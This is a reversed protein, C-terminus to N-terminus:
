TEMQTDINESSRCMMTSIMYFITHAKESGSNRIEPQHGILVLQLRVVRCPKSKVSWTVNKANKDGSFNASGTVTGDAATCNVTHLHLKYDLAIM